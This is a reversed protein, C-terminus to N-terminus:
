TDLWNMDGQANIHSSLQFKGSLCQSSITQTLVRTLFTRHAIGVWSKQRPYFSSLQVRTHHTHPFTSCVHNSVQIQHVPLGHSLHLRCRDSREESPCFILSSCGLFPLIELIEPNGNLMSPFIYFTHHLIRVDPLVSVKFTVGLAWSSLCPLEVEWLSGLNWIIDWGHSWADLARAQAPCKLNWLVIMKSSNRIGHEYEQRSTTLLDLKNEM